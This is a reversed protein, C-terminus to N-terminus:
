VPAAKITAFFVSFNFYIYELCNNYVICLHRRFGILYRVDLWYRIEVELTNQMEIM